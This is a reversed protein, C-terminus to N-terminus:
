KTMKVALGLRRKDDGIKYSAPVHIESILLVVRRQASTQPSIDFTRWEGASLEGVKFLASAKGDQDLLSVEQKPWPSMIALKLGTTSTNPLAITSVRRNLWCHGEAKIDNSRCILQQDRGVEIDAEEALKLKTQETLELKFVDIAPNTVIRQPWPKGPFSQEISAANLQAAELSGKPVVVRAFGQQYLQEISSKNLDVRELRPQTFVQPAFQLQGVIASDGSQSELWKTAEKRSEIVNRAQKRLSISQWALPTIIAIMAFSFIWNRRAVRPKQEFRQAIFFLGFGVALACYPIIVLMNRTFNARQSIMLLFYLIPFVAIILANKNIHTARVLVAVAAVLGFWGIGNQILWSIYFDAQALGPEAQHEFHGAVGYHWIEYAFQDLFLPLAVLIYPSGILFGIASVLLAVTLAIPKARECLIAVLVPIAVIPLANYKSSVALGAFLAVVCLRKLSFAQMSWLAALGTALCMCGMLVDVGVTASSSVLAPSVAAILACARATLQDAGLAQAILFVLLISILSLLVSFARDWILIREPYASFSYDAVGFPDATVIEALKQVEQARVSWLFAASIVPMRLYFHLSPKHFYRPNFEGQKVMNVVRNHHHAEDEDSFYPLGSYIFPIRLWVAVFLILCFGIHSRSM